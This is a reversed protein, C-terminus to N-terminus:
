EAVAINRLERKLVKGTEGKPLDKCFFYRKPRKFGALLEACHSQLSAEDCGERTTVFAAVMEGWREDPLGVVAVERVLPHQALVREVEAPYVNMGGSKIMDRKRGALFIFGDKDKYALDGSFLRGGRLVQGTEDPLNLYGSFVTPAAIVMEGVAGDPVPVGKEDLFDIRCFKAARGISETRPALDPRELAADIDDPLNFTVSGGAETSGYANYFRGSFTPNERLRRFGEAASKGPSNGYLLRLSSLDATKVRPLLTIANFMTEIAYIRTIGEREVADFVADPEFKPLIHIPIGACIFTHLMATGLGAALPTSILGKEDMAIPLHALYSAAVWALQVHSAICGKPTGTTGSTYRVMCPADPDLDVRPPAASGSQIMAEYSSLGDGSPDTSVVQLGDALGDLLHELRPDTFAISVGADKIIHAIESKVMGPMTPIFIAGISFCALQVEVAEIGNPLIAIVKDRARVGRAMLANALRCVRDNLTSWSLNTGCFSVALSAGQTAANRALCNGIYM